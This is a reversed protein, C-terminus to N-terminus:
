LIHILSISKTGFVDVNSHIIHAVSARRASPCNKSSFCFNFMAFEKILWAPVRLDAATESVSPCFKSGLYVQILL